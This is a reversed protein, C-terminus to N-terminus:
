PTSIPHLGVFGIELSKAWIDLVFFNYPIVLIYKISYTPTPHTYVLFLIKTTM